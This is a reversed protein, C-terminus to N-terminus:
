AAAGATCFYEDIQRRCVDYPDMGDLTAAYWDLTAFVAGRSDLRPRWKLEREAKSPDLALQRSERIKEKDPTARWAFRGPWREQIWECICKVAVAEGGTRPGFNWTVEAPDLSEQPLGPANEALLLYGELADLVFQWPRSAEPNRVELPIGAMVARVADPILREKSWDGGGVINGARAVVLCARTAFYSRYASVVCETAAKSASYPEIGGLRDTECFPRGEELNLYVKDSTAVLITRLADCSRLAELLHVTGLVNTAFTRRPTRWAERVLSQAAFHIVIEPKSSAVASQVAAYDELDLVHHAKIHRAVQAQSFLSPEEPALALGEVKSGLQELVLALWAGKFGTHGTLLVSRDKWFRPDIRATVISEVAAMRCQWQEM